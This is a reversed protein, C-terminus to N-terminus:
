DEGFYTNYMEKRTAEAHSQVSDMEAANFGLDSMIEATHEGLAPPASPAVTPTDSFAMLTGVTKTTGTVPLEIDVIYGNELNQPDTLVEDHNRVREWIIEPETAFFTEWEAMTKSGFAEQMLQRLEDVEATAGSLGIRKGLTDWEELLLVEPKDVFIWFTNWSDDTMSAVYLISVNDGTTYVGYPGTINPHHSGERNLPTGTLASHQLEWMQLWLQAGLSSTQVLQGRGTIGRAVLATACALALQMAGATDAITAGPPMPTVGPPGSLSALGGRAQAAGDLMAKEADKGRPGFGNAHGVILQPYRTALANLDFGMRTLASARYNSVFVDANAILKNLVAAGLETHVDLSISRKGKNMALFQSGLAEDPLTNNVGRHYRNPDGMPPEVKIVDAGMNAFYLGVAPGQIATAFEIVGLGELPGPM